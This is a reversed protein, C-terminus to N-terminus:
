QILRMMLIILIGHMIELNTKMMESSIHQQQVQEVHMNGNLKLLYVDENENLRSVFEQVDNWSVCEVPNSDGKYFSPNNGMIEVWQKQTVEYKSIYYSQAISVEHIPSEYDWSVSEPSSSGMSFKGTPILVFEMGISNTYTELEEQTNTTAIAANDQSVIDKLESTNNKHILSSSSFIKSTANTQNDPESQLVHGVDFRVFMLPLIFLFVCAIIKWNKRFDIIHILLIIASIVLVISTFSQPFRELFAGFGSGAGVIVLSSAVEGFSFEHNPTSVNNLLGSKKDKSSAGSGL